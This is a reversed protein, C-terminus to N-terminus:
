QHRTNSTRNINFQFGDFRFSIHLTQGHAPDATVAPLVPISRTLVNWYMCFKNSLQSKTSYTDNIRKKFVSVDHSVGHSADHSTDNSAMHHAVHCTSSRCRQIELETWLMLTTMSWKARPPTRAFSWFCWMVHWTISRWADHSAEEHTMHCAVHCTLHTWVHNGLVTGWQERRRM